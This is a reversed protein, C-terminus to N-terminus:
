VVAEAVQAEAEGCQTEAKAVQGETEALQTKAIAKSPASAEASTAGVWRTSGIVVWDPKCPGIPHRIGLSTFIKPPGDTAVIISVCSGYLSLKYELLQDHGGPM